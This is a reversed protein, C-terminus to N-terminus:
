SADGMNVMQEGGFPLVHDDAGKESNENKIAFLTEHLFSFEAASM